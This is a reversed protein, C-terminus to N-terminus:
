SNEWGLNGKKASKATKWLVKRLKKERKEWYILLFCLKVKNAAMKQMQPPPPVVGLRLQQNVDIGTLVVGGVLGEPNKAARRGGKQAASM